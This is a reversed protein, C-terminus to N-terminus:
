CRCNLVTFAFVKITFNWSLLLTGPWNLGLVFRIMSFSNLTTAFLLRIQLAGIAFLLMHFSNLTTVSLLRMRLNGMALAAYKIFEVDHCIIFAAAFGQHCSCRALYIWPWLLYYVCRRLELLLILMSFLNLTTVAGITLAAHWYIWRPPLYFRMHLARISLLMSFLNVMSALYLQCHWIFIRVCPGFALNLLVYRCVGPTSLLISLVWIVSHYSCLSSCCGLRSFCVLCFWLILLTAIRCPRIILFQAVLLM